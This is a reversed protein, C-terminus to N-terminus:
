KIGLLQRAVLYKGGTGLAFRSIERETAENPLRRAANYLLGQIIIAYFQFSLSAAGMAALPLIWDLFLRMTESLREVGSVAIVGHGGIRSLLGVLM